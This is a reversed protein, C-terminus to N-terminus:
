RSQDTDFLRLAEEVNCEETESMLFHFYSFSFQMDESHRFHSASTHAFHDQFRTQMREVIDVDVYHPMHAVVQRSQVGFVQNYMHNVYILSDAYADLLRRSRFVNSENVSKLLYQGIFHNMASEARGVKSTQKTTTNCIIDAYLQKLQSYFFEKGSGTVLGSKLHHEIQEFKQRIQPGMSAIDINCPLSLESTQTKQQHDTNGPLLTTLASDIPPSNWQRALSVNAELHQIVQTLNFNSENEKILTTKKKRQVDVFLSFNFMRQNIRATITFTLPEEQTVNQRLLVTLINHKLNLVASFISSVNRYQAKVLKVYYMGNVPLSTFNTFNFVIITSNAQYTYVNGTQNVQVQEATIELQGVGCDAMDYACHENNCVQDCFGDGLWNTLCNPACLDTNTSSASDYHAYASTVSSSNSGATSNGTRM